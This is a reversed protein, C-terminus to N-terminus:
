CLEEGSVKGVGHRKMERWAEAAVSNDGGAYKSIRSAVFDICVVIEMDMDAFYKALDVATAKVCHETLFGCLAIRHVEGAAIGNIWERFGMSTM